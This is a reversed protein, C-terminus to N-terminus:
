PHLRQQKRLGGASFFILDSLTSGDFQPARYRVELGDNPQDGFRMTGFDTLQVSIKRPTAITSAYEMPEAASRWACIRLGAPCRINVALSERLRSRKM